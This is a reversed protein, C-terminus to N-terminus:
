VIRYHKIAGLDWSVGSGPREPVQAMGDAIRLPEALIPEAWDVYELWHCTPTAALVQASAEPFRPAMRLYCFLYAHGIIGEETELDILLLPATRMTQASIGLPRAM